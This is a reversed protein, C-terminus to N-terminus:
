PFWQEQLHAAKYIITSNLKRGDACICCIVTAFERCGDTVRQAKKPMKVETVDGPLEELHPGALPLESLDALKGNAHRVYRSVDLVPRTQSNGM